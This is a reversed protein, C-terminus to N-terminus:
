LIYASQLEKIKVTNVEDCNNIAKTKRVEPGSFEVNVVLYLWFYAIATIDVLLPYFNM